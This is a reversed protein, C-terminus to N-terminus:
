YLGVDLGILLTQALTQCHKEDEFAITENKAYVISPAQVSKANLGLLVKDLQRVCHSGDNGAAVILAYPLAQLGAREAPYFIRDLLDKMGGAIAAFNEPAIFLILSASLIDDIDADLCRRMRVDVQETEPLMDLAAKYCALALQQAIGSQSHFVILLTKM